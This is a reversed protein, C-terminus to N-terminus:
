MSGNVIYNVSDLINRVGTEDMSKALQANSLAKETEGGMAHFYALLAYLQAKSIGLYKNIETLDQGNLLNKLKTIGDNLNNTLTTDEQMYISVLGIQSILHNSASNFYKKADVLNGNRYSIWGMGANSSDMEPQSTTDALHVFLKQADVYNKDKFSEWGKALVEMTNHFTGIDSFFIGSASSGPKKVSCGHQFTISLTIITIIMLVNLQRFQNLYNM